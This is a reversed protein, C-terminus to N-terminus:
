EVSLAFTQRLAGVYRVCDREWFSGVLLVYSFSIISLYGAGRYKWM